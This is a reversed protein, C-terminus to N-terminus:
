RCLKTITVAVCFMIRMIRPSMAALSLRMGSERKSEAENPSTSLRTVLSTSVTPMDMLIDAASSTVAATVRTPQMNIINFVLGFSVSIATPEATSPNPVIFSMMRLLWRCKM